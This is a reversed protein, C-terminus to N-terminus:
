SDGFAVRKACICCKYIADNRECFDYENAM